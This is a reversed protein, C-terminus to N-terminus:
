HALDDISVQLILDRGQSQPPQGAPEILIAYVWRVSPEDEDDRPDTVTMLFQITGSKLGSVPGSTFLVEDGPRFGDVSEPFSATLGMAEILGAFDHKVEAVRERSVIM